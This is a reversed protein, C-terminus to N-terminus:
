DENNVEKVSREMGTRLKRWSEIADQVAALDYISCNPSKLRALM